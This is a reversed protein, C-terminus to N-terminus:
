PKRRNDFINLDDGNENKKDYEMKWFISTM